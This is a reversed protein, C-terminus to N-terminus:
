IGSIPMKFAYLRDQATVYLTRLDTGGFTCNAPGRPVVLRGWRKGNAAFVAIEGASSPDDRAYSAVYVNGASDVALGDTTWATRKDMGLGTAFIQPGLLVGDSAIEFVRVLNQLTDSVYLREQNPSLAIGNPKSGPPGQWALAISQHTGTGSVRIVRRKFPETVFVNGDSRVVLDNPQDFLDSPGSLASLSGSKSLTFIGAGKSAAALFDHRLSGTFLKANSRALGGVHLTNEDVRTVKKPPDLLYLKSDRMDAFILVESRVSWAPGELYRFGEAVLVPDSAGSLPNPVRGAQGKATGDKLLNQSTPPSGACAVCLLLCAVIGFAECRFLGAFVIGAVRPRRAAGRGSTLPKSREVPM